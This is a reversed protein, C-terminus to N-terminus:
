IDKVPTFILIRFRSHDWPRLVLRELKMAGHIKDKFEIVVPSNDRVDHEPWWAAFDKSETKLLEVVELVWPNDLSEGLSARFEAMLRRANTEWGEVM